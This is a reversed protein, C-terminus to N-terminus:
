HAATIAEAEITDESGARTVVLQIAGVIMAAGIWGAPRLREGLVVAATAVGFVPELALIVATRAPGLRTQAWVQLLFALASVGLGTLAIATWQSGRPLSPGELPLSVVLGLAATVSLQVATLPVVPHRHAVRSLFVIHAAFGGACGLTLLDGGGLRVGDEFTLLSMGVFAFVVGVAVVPSPPRRRRAAVLLPTLVVYLGTILASNTADTLTLGATQLAYGAFLFLGAVAGDRWLARRTPFSLVLLAVAGLAFRWGVFAIPPFEAVAEKVVVFTVGFLFSAAILAAIAGRHATV